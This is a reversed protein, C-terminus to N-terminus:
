NYMRMLIAKSANSLSSETFLIRMGSNLLFGQKSNISIPGRIFSHWVEIFKNIDM